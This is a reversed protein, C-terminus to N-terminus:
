GRTRLTAVLDGLAVPTEERSALDKLKAQGTSVENGGLVVAFRAAVREAQKFQRALKGGRADLECPIGARRLRSAWLPAARAGAEDASVFFVV